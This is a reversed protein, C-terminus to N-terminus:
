CRGSSQDEGPVGRNPILPGRDERRQRPCRLHGGTVRPDIAYRDRRTHADFVPGLVLVFTLVFAFSVLVGIMSCRRELHFRSSAPTLRGDLNEPNRVLRYAHVEVAM